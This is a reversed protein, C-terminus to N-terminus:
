KKSGGGPKQILAEKVEKALSRRASMGLPSMPEYDIYDKGTHRILAQTGGQERAAKKVAERARIHTWRTDANRGIAKDATPYDHDHVGSNASPGSGVAFAFAFGSVVLPALEKCSPCEHSVHVDSKLNREFRLTCDFCEFSYKPM